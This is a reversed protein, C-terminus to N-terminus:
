YKSLMLLFMEFSNMTRNTKCVLGDTVSDLIHEVTESYVFSM